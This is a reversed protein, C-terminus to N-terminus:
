ERIYGNERAWKDPDTIWEDQKEAWAMAWNILTDESFVESPSMNDDIWDTISELFERGFKNDQAQTSM